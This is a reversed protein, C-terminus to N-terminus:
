PGEASFASGEALLTGPRRSRVSPSRSWVKLDAAGPRLYRNLAKRIKDTQTSMPKNLTICLGM